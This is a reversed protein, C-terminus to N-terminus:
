TRGWPGLRSLFRRVGHPLGSPASRAPTGAAAQQAHLRDALAKMLFADRAPAVVGNAVLVLIRERRVPEQSQLFAETWPWNRARLVHAILAAPEHELCPAVDRADAASVRAWADEPGSPLAPRAASSAMSHRAASGEIFGLTKLEELLGILIARDSAPLAALLWARDDEHLDHMAAAAHRYGTM